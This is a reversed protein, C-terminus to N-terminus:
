LTASIPEITHCLGTNHTTLHDCRTMAFCLALYAIAIARMSIQHKLQRLLLLLSRIAYESERESQKRGFSSRRIVSFAEMPPGLAISCGNQSFQLQRSKRATRSHGFIIPNIRLDRMHAHIARAPLGANITPARSWIEYEQATQVRQGSQVSSASQVNRPSGDAHSEM